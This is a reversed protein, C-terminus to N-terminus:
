IYEVEVHQQKDIKNYFLSKVYDKTKVMEQGEERTTTIHITNNPKQITGGYVLAECVHPGCYTDIRLPILKMEGMVLANHDLANFTPYLEHKKTQTPLLKSIKQLRLKQLSLKSVKIIIYKQQRGKNEEIILQIKQTLIDDGEDEDKEVKRKLRVRKPGRAHSKVINKWAENKKRRKKPMRKKPM